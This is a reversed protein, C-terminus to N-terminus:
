ENTIQGHSGHKIGSPKLELKPFNYNPLVVTCLVYGFSPLHVLWETLWNNNPYSVLVPTLHNICTTRTVPLWGGMHPHDDRHSEQNFWWNWLVRARFNIYISWKTINVGSNGISGRKGPSIWVRSSHEFVVSHVSSKKLLTRTEWEPRDCQM